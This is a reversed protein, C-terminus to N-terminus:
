DLPKGSSVLHFYTVAVVFRDLVAIKREDDIEICGNRGSVPIVCDYHIDLVPIVSPKVARCMDCDVSLLSGSFTCPVLKEKRFIIGRIFDARCHLYQIFFM